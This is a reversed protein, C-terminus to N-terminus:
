AVQHDLSGLSVLALWELSLGPKGVTTRRTIQRGPRIPCVLLSTEHGSIVRALPGMVTRDTKGASREWGGVMLSRYCLGCQCSAGIEGVRIDDDSDVDM